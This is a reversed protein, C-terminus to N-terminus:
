AGLGVRVPTASAPAVTVRYLLPELMASPLATALALPDHLKLALLRVLPLWRMVVVWVSTAPLTLASPLGYANLMSVGGVTLLTTMLAVPALPVPSLAPSTTVTVKVLAM